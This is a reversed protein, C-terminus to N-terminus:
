HFCQVSGSKSQSFFFSFSVSLSYHFKDPIHRDISLEFKNNTLSNLGSFEFTSDLIGWHQICKRIGSACSIQQSLSLAHRFINKFCIFYINIGMLYVNVKRKRKHRLRRIAMPPSWTVALIRLYGNRNLSWVLKM